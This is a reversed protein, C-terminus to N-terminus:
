RRRVLGLGAAMSGAASVALVLIRKRRVSHQYYSTGVVPSDGDPSLVFHESTEARARGKVAALRLEVAGPIKNWRLISASARGDQGTFVIDTTLGSSFKGSPGTSHLRLSVVAGPVLKGAGDAVEVVLSTTIRSGPRQVTGPGQVLRVVLIAPEADAPAERTGKQAAQTAALVLPLLSRM